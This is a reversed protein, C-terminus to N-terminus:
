IVDSRAQETRVGLPTKFAALVAQQQTPTSDWLNLLTSDEVLSDECTGAM